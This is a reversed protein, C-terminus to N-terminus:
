EEGWIQILQWPKLKDNSFSAFTYVRNKQRDFFIPSLAMADVSLAFTAGSNVEYSVVQMIEGLGSSKRWYLVAVPGRSTRTIGLIRFHGFERNTPLVEFKFPGEKHLPGFVLFDRKPNEDYRLGVLMENGSDDHFTEFENLNGLDKWSEYHNTNQNYEYVMSKLNQRHFLPRPRASQTSVLSPKFNQTVAETAVEYTGDFLERNSTVDYIAVHGRKTRANGFSYVRGNQMREIYLSDYKRKFIKEAGTPVHIIVVPLKDLNTLNVVGNFPAVIMYMDGQPGYAEDPAEFLLARYDPFGNPQPNNFIPSLARVDAIRREFVVDQTDLDYIALVGDMLVSAYVKGSSTELFDIAESGMPASILSKAQTGLVEQFFLGNAGAAAVYIKGKTSVFTKYPLGASHFDLPKWNYIPRSEEQANQVQTQQHLRTDQLKRLQARISTWEKEGIKGLIRRFGKRLAVTKLQRGARLPLTRSSQEVTWDLDELQITQDNLGMKVLNMYREVIAESRSAELECEPVTAYTNACNFILIALAFLIRM